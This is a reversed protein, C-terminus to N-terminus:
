RTRPYRATPSRSGSERSRAHRRAPSRRPPLQRGRLDAQRDARCGDADAARSRNQAGAALRFCGLGAPAPPGVLCWLCSAESCAASADSVPARAFWAAGIWLLAITTWSFPPASLTFPTTGATGGASVVLTTQNVASHMVMTLLVSGRTQVYLWGMAVSL